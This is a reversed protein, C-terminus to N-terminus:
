LTYITEALLYSLLYYYFFISVFFSQPLKMLIRLLVLIKEIKNHGCRVFVVNQVSEFYVFFPCKQREKSHNKDKKDAASFVKRNGLLCNFSKVEMKEWQTFLVANSIRIRTLTRHKRTYKFHLYFTLSNIM